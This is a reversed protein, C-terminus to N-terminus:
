FTITLTSPTDSGIRIRLGEGQADAQASLALQPSAAAHDHNSLDPLTLTHCVGLARAAAGASELSFATLPLDFRM